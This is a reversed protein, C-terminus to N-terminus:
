QPSDALLLGPQQTLLEKGPPGPHHVEMGTVIISSKQAQKTLFKQREKKRHVDLDGVYRKAKHLSLLPLKYKQLLPHETVEERSGFISTRLERRGVLASVHLGAVERHSVM